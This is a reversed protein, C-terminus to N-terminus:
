RERASLLGGERVVYLYERIFREAGRDDDLSFKGRVIEIVQNLNTALAEEPSEGEIDGVLYYAPTDTWGNYFLVEYHPM